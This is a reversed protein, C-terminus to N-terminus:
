ATARCAIEDGTLVSVDVDAGLIMAKVGDPLLPKIQRQCAAVHEPSLWRNFKLVVVDGPRCGLKAIQYEAADSM